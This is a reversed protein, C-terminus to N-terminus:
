TVEATNGPAAANEEEGRRTEKRAVNVERKRRPAANRRLVGSIKVATRLSTVGAPFAFVLPVLM